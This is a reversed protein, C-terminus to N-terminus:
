QEDVVFNQVYKRVASLWNVLYARHPDFEYEETETYDNFTYSFQAKNSDEPKNVKFKFDLVDMDLNLAKKPVGHLSITYGKGNDKLKFSGDLDYRTSPEYELNTHKEFNIGDYDLKFKKTPSHRDYDMNLKVKPTELVLHSPVKRSLVGELKGNESKVPVINVKGDECKYTSEVEFDSQRGKLHITGEKLTGKVSGEVLTSDIDMDVEGGHRSYKVNTTHEPTKHYFTVLSGKYTVDADVKLERDGGRKTYHKLTFRPSLFSVSMDGEHYLNYKKSDVKLSAYKTNPHVLDLSVEVLGDNQTVVNLTTPDILSM